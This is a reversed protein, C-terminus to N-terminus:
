NPTFRVTTEAIALPKSYRHRTSAIDITSTCDTLQDGGRGCDYDLSTRRPDATHQDDRL